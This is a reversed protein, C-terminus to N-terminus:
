SSSLLSNIKNYDKARTENDESLPARLRDGFEVIFHSM